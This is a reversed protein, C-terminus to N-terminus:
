AVRGRLSRLLSDASSSRLDARLAAAQEPGLEADLREAATPRRPDMVGLAVLHRVLRDTRSEVPRPAHRSPRDHM